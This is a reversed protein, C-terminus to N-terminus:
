IDPLIPKGVDIEAEFQVPHLAQSARKPPPKNPPLSKRPGTPKLGWEYRKKAEPDLGNMFSPDLQTMVQATKTAATKNKPNPDMIAKSVADHVVNRFEDGVVDPPMAPDTKEDSVPYTPGQNRGQKGYVGRPDQSTTPQKGKPGSYNKKNPGKPGRTPDTDQVPPDAVRQTLGADATQGHKDTVTVTVPYAGPKAYPHVTTPTTTTVKPSNDGFDWVIERM